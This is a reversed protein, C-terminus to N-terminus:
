RERSERLTNQAHAYSLLIRLPVVFPSCSRPPLTRACESARGAGGRARARARARSDWGRRTRRRLSRTSRTSGSRRLPRSPLRTTRSSPPSARQSPPATAPHLWTLTSRQTSLICAAPPLLSLPRVPRAAAEQGHAEGQGQRRGDQGEQGTRGGDRRGRLGRGGGGGRGGRGRGFGGRRRRRRRPAPPRGRGRRAVRRPQQGAPRPAAAAPRAVQLVPDRQGHGRRTSPRHTLAHCGPLPLLLPSSRM